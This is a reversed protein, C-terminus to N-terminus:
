ARKSLRRVQDITHCLPKQVYVHKGLDVASYAVTFHTHDPTSVVVADIDKGVEDFLKRYDSFTKPSANRKKRVGEAASNLRGSDVDCLAVVSVGNINGVGNLDGGGMGGVGIHATNIRNSPANEGRLFGSPLILLGSALSANKLFDRRSLNQSKM